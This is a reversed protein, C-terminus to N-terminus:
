RASATTASSRRRRRGRLAADRSRRSRRGARRHRPARLRRDLAEPTPRAREHPLRVVVDRADGDAERLMGASSGRRDGAAAHPRGRATPVGLLGAKQRDVALGCTPAARAAGPQGRVAHGADRAAGREVRAPSRACRTWARPGHVRMRSRRTSRRATRSSACSSARAPIRPSSRACRTSCRRRASRRRVRRAARVAPGRQRKDGRPIVNYYIQPNDRGVNTLVTACRRARRGICRARRLAGRPRDRWAVRGGADDIDCTPVAADGGQPLALLRGGAGAGARAVVLARPRGRADRRPAALARDCCRRTRPTSRRARLARLSATAARTAETRAVAAPEGAVPHDHAVRAAVGARDYIVAVPLSRIYRGRCGPCSSCRCSRSCWRRRRLGAGRGRDAAHGRDRGRARSHGERLFRTINEVVM